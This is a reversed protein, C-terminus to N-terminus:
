DLLGSVEFDPPHEVVFQYTVTQQGQAAVNLTWELMGLDGPLVSPDSQTLRVKLQEHKSVPMQEQLTLQCPHDRLNRVRIRYAFSTRRLGKILTKDVQRQVLDREIQLGEDIGLNVKFEQGPAVSEILDTGVFHHDRFINSQGKLLSVGQSPNTVTAQLYAFSVLKPIAIYAPRCPYEASFVTFKHPTPSSPISGRRDLKFTVVGSESRSPTAKVSRVASRSTRTSSKGTTAMASSQPSVQAAMSVLGGLPTDEIPIAVPAEDLYWPELKPPLSGLGPKATSLTLEVDPWDEGTRQQINAMYTLTLQRAEANVRLDYLPTWSAQQMVYSIEVELEGASAATIGIALLITGQPNPNQIERLHNRCIQIQEQLQEKQREGQWIAMASDPYQQDTFSLLQQTQELTVQQAALGRAFRDVAKVLLDELFSQQLRLSALRGELRQYQEELDQLQQKLQAVQDPQPQRAYIPKVEVGDFQVPMTASGSVRVSEKLLTSPLGPVVIQQEQGTLQMFGKRTVRVQDAYVTVATIQSSLSPHDPESPLSSVTM